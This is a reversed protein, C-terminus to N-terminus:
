LYKIDGNLDHGVPIPAPIYITDDDKETRSHTDKNSPNADIFAKHTARSGLEQADVQLAENDEPNTSLEPSTM